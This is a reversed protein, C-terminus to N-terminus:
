ERGLAQRIKEMAQPDNKIKSLANLIFAFFVLSFFLALLLVLSISLYRKKQSELSISRRYLSVPSLAQLPTLRGELIAKAIYRREQIETSEAEQPSDAIAITVIESNSTSRASPELLATLQENVQKELLELLRQAKDGEQHSFELIIAASESDRTASYLRRQEPLAKGDQDENLIYRRHIYELALDRSFGADLSLNGSGVAGLTKIGSDLFTNLLLEPQQFLPLVKGELPFHDLASSPLLYIRATPLLLAQKQKQMYSPIFLSGLSLLLAACLLPLLILRRHHLLVLSLDLLDIEDEEIHEDM